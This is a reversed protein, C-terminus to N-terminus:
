NVVNLDVTNLSSWDTVIRAVKRCIMSTWHDNGDDTYIFEKPLDHMESYYPPVLWDMSSGYNYIQLKDENYLQIVRDTLTKRDMSETCFYKQPSVNRDCFYNAVLSGNWPTSVTILASIKFEEEYAKDAQKICYAGAVLGGMSNGVLIVKDLDVNLQDRYQTKMKLLKKHVDDAYEFMDKDHDDRRPHKNLNLSFVHGIKSHDLLLRFIYFLHQNGNSGPVLIIPTGKKLLKKPDCSKTHWASLFVYFGFWIPATIAIKSLIVFKKWLYRLISYIEFLISM